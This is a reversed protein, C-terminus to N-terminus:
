LEAKLEDIVRRSGYEQFLIRGRELPSVELRREDKQANAPVTAVLERVAIDFLHHTFTSEVHIVRGDKTPDLPVGRLDILSYTLMQLHAARGIPHVLSVDFDTLRTFIKGAGHVFFAVGNFEHEARLTINGRCFPEKLLHHPCLV